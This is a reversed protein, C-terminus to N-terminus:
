STNSTRPEWSRSVFPVPQSGTIGNSRVSPSATAQHSDSNRYPAARSPAATTNAFPAIIPDTRPTPPPNGPANYATSGNRLACEKVTLGSEEARAM